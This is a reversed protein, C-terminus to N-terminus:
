LIKFQFISLSMCLLKYKIVANKKKKKPALFTQQGFRLNKKKKEVPM